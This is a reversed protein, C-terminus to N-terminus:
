PRVTVVHRILEERLKSLSGRPMSTLKDMASLANM